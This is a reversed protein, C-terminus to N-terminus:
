AHMLGRVYRFTEDLTEDTLQELSIDILPKQLHLKELFSSTQFQGLGSRVQELKGDHLRVDKLHALVIRSGFAAFAEDLFEDQNEMSSPPLLNVPDFVVGLNGTPVEELIRVMKETSSLTHTYVPELGIFVGRKDAEEALEEVTERLIRWGIEEYKQEDVGIYTKLDGTETAVISTGFDRAYRIHEKFRDIELRRQQPDPHVPNIYCGLVGIRIGARHFQEGIHNALAPSLRGLGTDIDSIAKSLALQVFDVGRGSLKATLEALPLRGVTHALTGLGM